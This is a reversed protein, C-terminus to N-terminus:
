SVQIGTGRSSIKLFDIWSKTLRIGNTILSYSINPAQEYWSKFIELNHPNMTVEGGKINVHFTGGFAIAAGVVTKTLIDLVEKDKSIEMGRNGKYNRLSPPLYCFECSANCHLNDLSVQMTTTRHHKFFDIYYDLDM